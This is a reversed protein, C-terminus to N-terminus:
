TKFINKIFDFVYYSFANSPIHAPTSSYTGGNLAILRYTNNSLM